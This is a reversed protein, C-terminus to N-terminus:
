FIFASPQVGLCNTFNMFHNWATAYRLIRRVLDSKAISGPKIAKYGNEGKHAYAIDSIDLRLNAKQKKSDPGHCAFCKDSLIQKVKFNYDIEDPLQAIQNQVDVPINIKECSSFILILVIAFLSYNTKKM